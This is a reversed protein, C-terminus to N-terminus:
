KVCLTSPPNMEIFNLPGVTFHRPRFPVYRNLGNSRGQVTAILNKDLEFRDAVDVTLDSIWPGRVGVIWVERFRVILTRHNPNLIVFLYTEKLRSREDSDLPQPCGQRPDLGLRKSPDSSWRSARGIGQPGRRRRRVRPVGEDALYWIRPCLCLDGL